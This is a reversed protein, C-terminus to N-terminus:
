KFLEEVKDTLLKYDYKKATNRARVGLENYDKIDMKVLKLIAEAYEQSSKFEKSIGLDFQNIPCYMMRLNCCIPKGSAMYQFMKSQSGGFNGLNGPMYNLINVTSCSLVYPVYKPEIWKEKFIVNSINNDICYKELNARDDGDGYLLFKINKETQLLRASQILQMLNNALRISGIYIVKKIESNALDSDNLQYNQTYLVFDNLDVGNNIYHVKELQIKGGHSVDWGKSKIYDAGGEMSFVVEDAREYLWKEAKYAFHLLPNKKNIIGLEVFSQPWLDLVEVIYKANYKKALFYLSNGFPVTATQIIIDPKPFKKSIKILRHPFQFSGIIRSIGNSNYSKTKIHVFKVDGYTMEIYLSNDTILDIDMNHMISSAFITVDYGKQSLYQAFKITRLRSELEPPMAYQNILWIRKM